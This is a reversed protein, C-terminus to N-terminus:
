VPISIGPSPPAGVCTDIAVFRGLRARRVIRVDGVREDSGLSPRAGVREDNAVISASRDTWWEGILEHVNIMGSRRRLVWAHISLRAGLRHVLRAMGWQVRSCESQGVACYWPVQRRVKSNTDHPKARTTCEEFNTSAFTRVRLHPSAATPPTVLTQACRVFVPSSDYGFAGVCPTLSRGCDTTAAM